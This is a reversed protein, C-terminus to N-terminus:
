LQAWDEAFMDTQSALWPVRGRVAAPNDSMLDLTVIYIYPQTMKSNEDPFQGIIYIGKGNWGKRAYAFGQKIGAMMDGFTMHGNMNEHRLQGPRFWTDSPSPAGLLYHWREDLNVKIGDSSTSKEVVTGMVPNSALRYRDFVGVRDGIEFVRM